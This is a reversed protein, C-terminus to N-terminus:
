AAASWVRLAGLTLFGARRAARLHEGREYGVLPSGPFLRAAQAAIASWLRELPLESAFANTVGVLGGSRNLLAGARVGGHGRVALVRVEPAQLVAPLLTETLAAARAWARLEQESDLVSLLGADPAGAGCAGMWLWQAEFLLRFGQRDLDLTAFSDKVAVGVRGWLTALLERRDARPSLTVADPYLPPVARLAAWYAESTRTPIGHARCVLDCWRANNHAAAAVRELM